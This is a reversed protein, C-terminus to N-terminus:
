FCMLELLGSGKLLIIVDVSYDYNFMDMLFYVNLLRLRILM